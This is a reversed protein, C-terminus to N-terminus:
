RVGLPVLKTRGYWVFLCLILAVFSSIAAGIGFAMVSIVIAGVMIIALLIAALPTLSPRIRLLAPLILGLGGLVECVGIFRMFLGPLHVPGMSTFKEIPLVLKVGGAFLFFLGLLVQVIWLLINM